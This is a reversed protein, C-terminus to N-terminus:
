DSFYYLFNYDDNVNINNIIEKSNKKAMYPAENFLKRGKFIIRKGRQLASIKKSLDKVDQEKKLRLQNEYKNKMKRKLIVKEMLNKEEKNGNKLVNEIELVLQNLKIEKDELAFTIEKCRAITDLIDVLEFEKHKKNTIENGIDLIYEMYEEVESKQITKFNKMENEMIKLERQCINQEKIFEERKKKLSSIENEHEEEFKKIEKKLLDKEKIALVLFSEFQSYKQMLLEDNSQLDKLLFERETKNEEKEVTNIFEKALSLANSSNIKKIIIKDLAFPVNFVKHVFSGYNKLSLIDKLMSETKEILKKNLLGENNLDAETKDKNQKVLNLVDDEKKDRTKVQDMFNLFDKYDKDLKKENLRLSNIILNQKENIETRKEKIRKIIYNSLSIEKHKAVVIKRKMLMKTPNFGVGVKTREKVIQDAGIFAERAEGKELPLPPFWADCSLTNLTLFKSASVSKNFNPHFRSFTTTPQNSKINSQTYTSTNNNNSLTNSSTFTGSYNTTAISRNHGHHYNQMTPIFKTNNNETISYLSLNNRMITGGLNKLTSSTKM